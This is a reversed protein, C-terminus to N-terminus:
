PSEWALLDALAAAAALLGDVRERDVVIRLGVQLPSNPVQDVYKDDVIGAAHSLVHRAAMNERLTTWTDGLVAPLDIGVHDRFIAEVDGLRQFVNGTRKETKLVSAANEVREHFVAKLFVEVATATNQVSNELVSVVGGDAEFQALTEEPLRLINDIKRREIAIQETFQNTPALRGCGPCFFAPGFVAVSEGCRGCGITRLTKEQEYTYFTRPMPAPEYDFGMARIHDGTQHATAALAIERIRQRTDDTLFTDVGGRYGCAVCYVDDTTEGEFLSSHHGSVRGCTGPILSPEARSSRAEPPASGEHDQPPRLGTPLQLPAWGHHGAGEDTAAMPAVARQPDIGTTQLVNM